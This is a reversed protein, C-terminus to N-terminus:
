LQDNDLFCQLTCLHTLSLKSLFRISAVPRIRNSLRSNYEGAITKDLVIGAQSFNEVYELEM